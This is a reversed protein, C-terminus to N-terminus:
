DAYKQMVQKVANTGLYHSINIAHQASVPVGPRLGPRLGVQDPGILESFSLKVGATLPRVINPDLYYM